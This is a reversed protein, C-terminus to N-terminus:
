EKTVLKIAEELTIFGGRYLASYKGGNGDQFFRDLELWDAIVMRVLASLSDLQYRQNALILATHMEDSIRISLPKQKPM